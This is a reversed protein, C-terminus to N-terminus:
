LPHVFINQGIIKQSLTKLDYEVLVMESATNFRVTIFFRPSDADVEIGSGASAIREVLIKEEENAVNGLCVQRDNDKLAKLYLYSNSDPMWTFLSPKDLTKLTILAQGTWGYLECRNWRNGVMLKTGDPSWVLYKAEFPKAFKERLIIEKTDSRMIFFGVKSGFVLYEGNPSLGFSLPKDAALDIFDEVKGEPVSMIQMKGEQSLIWIKKGDKALCLTDRSNALVPVWKDMPEETKGALWMQISSFYALVLNGVSQFHTVVLNIGPLIAAQVQLESDTEALGASKMILFRAAVKPSFSIDKWAAFFVDPYDRAWPTEVSILIGEPLSYTNLCSEKGTLKDLLGLNNPSLKSYSKRFDCHLRLAKRTAPQFGELEWRMKPTNIVPKVWFYFNSGFYSSANSGLGIGTQKFLEVARDSLIQHRTLIDPLFWTKKIRDFGLYFDDKKTRGPKLIFVNGQIDSEMSIESTLYIIDEKYDPWSHFKVTKDFVGIQQIGVEKQPFDKNLPRYIHKGILKIGNTGQYDETPFEYWSWQGTKRDQAL